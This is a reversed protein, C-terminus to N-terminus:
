GVAEIPNRQVEARSYCCVFNVENRARRPICYFPNPSGRSEPSNLPLLLVVNM